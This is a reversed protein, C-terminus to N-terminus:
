LQLPSFYEIEMKIRAIDGIDMPSIATSVSSGTDERTSGIESGDISIIGSCDEM